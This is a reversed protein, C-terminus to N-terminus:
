KKPIPEWFTKKVVYDGKEPDWDQVIVWVKDKGPANKEWGVSRMGVAIAAKESTYSSSGGGGGQPNKMFYDWRTKRSKSIILNWEGKKEHKSAASEEEKLEESEAEKHLANAFLLFSPESSQKHGQDKMWWALAWPNDIEPHKKMKKVTDEWGEPAVALHDEMPSMTPAPAPVCGCAEKYRAVVNPVIEEIMAAEKMQAKSKLKKKLERYAKADDKSVGPKNAENHLVGMAKDLMNVSVDEGKEIMSRVADVANGSPKKKWVKGIDDAVSKDIKTKTRAAGSGSGGDEKKVTHNKADANPHERLYTKLAEPSSLEKAQVQSM